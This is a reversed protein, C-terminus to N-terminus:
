NTMRLIGCQALDRDFDTNTNEVENAQRNYIKELEKSEKDFDCVIKGSKDYKNISTTNPCKECIMDFIEKGAESNTNIIVAEDDKDTIEQVDDFLASWWSTIWDWVSSIVDSFWDIVGDFFDDAADIIWDFLEDLM